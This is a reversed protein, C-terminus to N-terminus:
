VFKTCVCQICGELGKISLLLGELGQTFSYIFGQMM